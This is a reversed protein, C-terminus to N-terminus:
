PIRLNDYINVNLEHEYFWEIEQGMIKVGFCSGYKECPEIQCIVGKSGIFCSEYLKPDINDKIQVTDGIQM